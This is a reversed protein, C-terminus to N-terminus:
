RGPPSPHTEVPGPVPSQQEYSTGKYVIWLVGEQRPPIVITLSDLDPDCAARRASNLIATMSRPTTGIVRLEIGHRSALAEYWRALHLQVTTTLTQRRAFPNRQRRPM